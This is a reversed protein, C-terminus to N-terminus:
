ERPINETIRITSADESFVFAHRASMKNVRTAAADGAAGKIEEGEELSTVRVERM